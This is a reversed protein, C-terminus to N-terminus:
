TQKIFQFHHDIDEAPKVWESGPNLKAEFFNNILTVDIYGRGIYKRSRGFTIKVLTIIRRVKKQQSM